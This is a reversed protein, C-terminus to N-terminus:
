EPIPPNDFSIVSQATHQMCQEFTRTSLAVAIWGLSLLSVFSVNAPRVAGADFYEAWQGEFLCTQRARQARELLPAWVTEHEARMLTELNTPREPDALWPTATRAALFRAMSGPDRDALAREVDARVQQSCAARTKDAYAQLLPRVLRDIAKCWGAVLPRAADDCVPEASALFASVALLLSDYVRKLYVTRRHPAPIEPESPAPGEAEGGGGGAELLAGPDTRRADTGIVVATSLDAVFPLADRAKVHAV